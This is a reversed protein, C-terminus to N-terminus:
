VHFWAKLECKGNTAPYWDKKFIATHIHLALKKDGFHLKCRPILLITVVTDVFPGQLIFLSIRWQTDPAVYRNNLIIRDTVNRDWYKQSRIAVLSNDINRWIISFSYFYSRKVAFMRVASMVSISYYLRTGIPFHPKWIPIVWKSQKAVNDLESIGLVGGVSTYQVSLLLIRILVM